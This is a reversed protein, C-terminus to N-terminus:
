IVWPIDDSGSAPLELKIYENAPWSEIAKSEECATVKFLIEKKIKIDLIEIPIMIEVVESIAFKIFKNLEELPVDSGISFRQISSTAIEIDFKLKKFREIGAQPTKDMRIFIRDTGYGFWIGSILIDSKHMTSAAKICNFYGAPQWEYYYTLKGDIVPNIYDIPNTYIPPDFKTRIPKLLALPIDLDLFRYINAVHSRFLRDFDDNYPGIHDEGFWWCWDSGEAIMIEKWAKDLRDRPFEPNANEFDCLDRRAAFLLDWARNDEDHGIWISFNHNIWSGAFLKDLKPKEFGYNLYENFTVTKIWPTKEIRSYLAQLFDQGDNKYYEWANEGDLIVSVVPNAIKNSLTTDLISKLRSVFDNVAKEPDWSSYVFGINDSLAHDRFFLSIDSKGYRYASYLRSTTVISDQLGRGASGISESLIEEDTALWKIGYKLLIPIIQDSVSGEAPWMGIPERNFLNRYCEIADSVHREADEPFTFRHSPLKANPISQLASNTDILLPLIPHFYPTISIEIQGSEQHRKLSPIIDSIIKRQEEMIQIIDNETYKEGKSYLEKLPSRKRFSPDIWSLNFLAQLDRWEAIQWEHVASNRTKYLFNYRALLAIMNDFNAQFFLGLMESKEEISLDSASKLTLEMHRDLATGAAYDQIQELLSPVMNFTQHIEPYNDLIEVMDLYDKVAHLRVWPLLYKGSNLDKYYPQHQHWLFGLNLIPGYYNAAGRSPM